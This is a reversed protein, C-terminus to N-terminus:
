NAPQTAAGEPTSGQQEGGTGTQPTPDRDVPPNVDTETSGTTQEDRGSDSCAGLALVCALAVSLAITRM